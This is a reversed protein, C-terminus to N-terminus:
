NNTKPNRDIGQPSGVASQTHIQFDSVLMDTLITVLEDFLGPNVRNPQGGQHPPSSSDFNTKKIHLYPKM